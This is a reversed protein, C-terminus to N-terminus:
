IAFNMVAPCVVIIMSIVMLIIMPILLKTGAEEGMRKAQEKRHEFADHEEQELLLTVGGAGKKIQQTLLSTLKLYPLLAIRKGLNMYAQEQTVGSHMENWMVMLEEYLPHNEMDAMEYQHLIREFAGKITAGAGIYLVLQNVLYPYEKLLKQNQRKIQEQLKEKQRFWLLGGLTAGFLLIVWSDATKNGEDTLHIGQIDSPIVVERDYVSEQILEELRRQLKQQEAESATLEKPQVVVEYERSETIEGYSLELQIGVTRAESLNQNNVIGREDIVEYDDSSWSVRLGSDPISTQLNMNVQIDSPGENEGSMVQELYAFGKRFQEALEDSRYQVPELTVTLQETRQQQNEYSLTYQVEEGGYDERTLHLEGTNRGQNMVWLLISMVGALVLIWLLKSLLEVYYEEVKEETQATNGKYLRIMNRRILETQILRRGKLQRYVKEALVKM